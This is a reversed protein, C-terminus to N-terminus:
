GKGCHGLKGGVLKAQQGVELEAWLAKSSSAALSLNASFMLTGPFLLKGVSVTCAVTDIPGVKWPEESKKNVCVEAVVAEM